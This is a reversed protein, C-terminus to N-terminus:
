TNGVSPDTKKEPRLVVEPLSGLATALVPLLGKGPKQEAGQKVQTLLMEKAKVRKGRAKGKPILLRTTMSTRVHLEHANERKISNGAIAQKHDKGQPLM